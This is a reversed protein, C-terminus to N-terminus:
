HGQGKRIWTRDINKNQREGRGAQTRKLNMNKYLKTRIKTTDATNKERGKCHMGKSHLKDQGKDTGWVNDDKDM